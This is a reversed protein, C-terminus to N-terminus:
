KGLTEPPIVEICYAELVRTERPPFAARATMCAKETPFYKVQEIPGPHVTMLVLVWLTKM